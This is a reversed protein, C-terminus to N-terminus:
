FFISSRGGPPNRVRIQPKSDIAPRTPSEQIQEPTAEPEPPHGGLDVSSKHQNGGSAPPDTFDPEVSFYKININLFAEWLASLPSKVDVKLRM